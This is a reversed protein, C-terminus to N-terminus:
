QSNFFDNFFSLSQSNGCVCWLFFVRLSYHHCEIWLSPIGISEWLWIAYLKFLYFSTKIWHKIVIVVVISFSFCLQGSLSDFWLIKREISLLAVTEVITSMYNLHGDLIHNTTTTATTPPSSAQFHKNLIAKVHIGMFHVVDFRSSLSICGVWTPCRTNWTYTHSFLSLMFYIHYYTQKPM